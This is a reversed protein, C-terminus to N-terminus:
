RNRHAKSKADPFKAHMAIKFKANVHIVDWRGKFAFGGGNLSSNSEERRQEGRTGADNSRHPGASTERKREHRVHGRAWGSVGGGSGGGGGM